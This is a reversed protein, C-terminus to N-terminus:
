RNAVVEETSSRENIRAALLQRDAVPKPQVLTGQYSRLKYGAPDDFRFVTKTGVTSKTASAIEASFDFRSFLNNLNFTGVSISM